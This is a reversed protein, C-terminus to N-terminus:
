RLMKTALCIQYPLLKGEKIKSYDKFRADVYLEQMLICKCRKKPM